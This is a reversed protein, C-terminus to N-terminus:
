TDTRAGNEFPVLGAIVDDNSLCTAVARLVDMAREKRRGGLAPREGLQLFADPPVDSASM